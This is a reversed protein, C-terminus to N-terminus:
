AGAVTLERFRLSPASVRRYPDLDNAVAEVSQLMGLLDGAVTVKSVAHDLRGDRIWLGAAGQSYDGTAINVGPGFLETVYFGERIGDLLAEPAHPGPQLHLNTVGVTPADAVSRAASGTSALGLKRAAYTDLFYSRLVGGDIAVNRRTTLGEGDYPKSGMGGHVGPEDILTICESAVREGLRGRLYSTGRYIAYGNLASAIHGLLASATRAELVVPVKCTSVQRAGLRRLARGAAVRGVEEADALDRYWRRQTVWYDREMTDGETAVPVVWGAFSSTRYSGSIGGSAAFCHLVSSFGFEGGESNSIRPDAALATAEAARAWAAGVEMDFEAAGPDDLDPLALHAAGYGGDPLGAFPDESVLRALAVTQDALADLAAESLDSTATIAQRAGVMVRLGLQRERARQIQDVEGLRVRVSGEVSEVAVADAATAGKQEARRIVRELFANLESM